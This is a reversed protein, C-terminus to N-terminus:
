QMKISKSVGAFTTIIPSVSLYLGAFHGISLTQHRIKTKLFNFRGCGWHKHANHVRTLRCFSRYTLILTKIRIRISYPYFM